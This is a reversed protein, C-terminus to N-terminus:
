VDKRGSGGRMWQVSNSAQNWLQKIEADHRPAGGWTGGDYEGTLRGTFSGQEHTFDTFSPKREYWAFPSSDWFWPSGDLGYDESTWQTLWGIFLEDQYPSKDEFPCLGVLLAERGKPLAATIKDGVAQDFVSIPKVEVFIQAGDEGFLVFDPSWTGFDIPEYEFSWGLLTFFAAWKAELRSRYQRGDFKTPIAKINYQLAMNM